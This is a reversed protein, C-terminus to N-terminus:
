FGTDTVPVAVPAYSIGPLFYGLLASDSGTLRGWTGGLRKGSMYHDGGSHMAVM